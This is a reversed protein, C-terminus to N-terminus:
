IVGDSELKSHVISIGEKLEAIEKPTPMQGRAKRHVNIVYRMAQDLKKVSKNDVDDPIVKEAMKIASIISGEYKAWLPKKSYLYNLAIVFVAAVATIGLPSNLANLITEM